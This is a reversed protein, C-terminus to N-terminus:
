HGHSGGSGNSINSGIHNNTAGQSKGSSYIEFLKQGRQDMHSTGPNKSSFNNGHAMSNTLPNKSGISGQGKKNQPKMPEIAPDTQM